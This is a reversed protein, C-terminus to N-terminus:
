LFYLVRVTDNLMMLYQFHNKSFATLNECSMIIICVFVTKQHNGTHCLSNWTFTIQLLLRIVASVLTQGISLTLELYSERQWLIKTTLLFPSLTTHLPEIHTHSFFVPWSNPVILKIQDFWVTQYYHCLECLWFM